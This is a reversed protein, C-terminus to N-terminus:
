PSPVGVRVAQSFGEALGHARARETIDGLAYLEEISYDQNMRGLDYLYEPLFGNIFVRWDLPLDAGVGRVLRLVSMSCNTFVSNFFIPSSDIENAARVYQELFIRRDDPGVDLRFLHVNSLQINSRLGVIDRESGAVISVPNTRFFDAVPSFTQGKSRRVEVSWNLYQGDAFGFSVMLHAMTPGAWYSMFLDVTEIQSLDFTRTTWIETVDEESRWEFDRFNTLTLLDGDIVGTVQRAVEPSWDRDNPPILSTWFVLVAAFAVGFLLFPRKGSPRFLAFIASLGLGAFIASSIAVSWTAGPLQFWLALSGWVTVYALLPLLFVAKLVTLATTM